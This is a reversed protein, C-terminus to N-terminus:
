KLKRFAVGEIIAEQIRESLSDEREELAISLYPRPELVRPTSPKGGKNRQRKRGGGGKAGAELFLAYFASDKVVVSLGNRAPKVSISSALKGTDSAPPQGPSSATHQGYKHGTGVTSRILKRAVGAIEQGAQRLVKRTNKKDWTLLHEPIDIRLGVM